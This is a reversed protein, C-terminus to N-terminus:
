SRALGENASQFHPVVRQLFNPTGVDSKKARGWREHAKRTFRWKACSWQDLYQIATQSAFFADVGPIVITAVALAAASLSQDWGLTIKGADSTGIGWFFLAPASLLIAMTTKSAGDQGSSSDKSILNSGWALVPAIICLILLMYFMQEEDTVEPLLLQYIVIMKGPIFSQIKAEITSAKERLAVSKKLQQSRKTVLDKMESTATTLAAEMATESDDDKDIGLMKDVEYDLVNERAAYFVADFVRTHGSRVALTLISRGWSDTALVQERIQEKWLFKRIFNFTSKFMVVSSRGMYNEDVAAEVDQAFVGARSMSSVSQEEAVLGSASPAPAINAGDTPGSTQHIQTQQTVRVDDPIYTSDRAAIISHMLLTVGDCDEVKLLHRVKKPPLYTECGTLVANLGMLNGARVAHMLITKRGASSTVLQGYVGEDHFHEHIAKLVENFVASSGSMAAHILATKQDYDVALLTQPDHACAQQAERLVAGVTAINGSSAAIMALTMGSDDKLELQKMMVTKRSNEQRSVGEDNKEFLRDIAHLTARFLAFKGTAAAAMLPTRFHHKVHASQQLIIKELKLGGGINFSNRVNKTHGAEIEEFLLNSAEELAGSYQK